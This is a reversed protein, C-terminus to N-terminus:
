YYLFTSSYRYSLAHLVNPLDQVISFKQQIEYAATRSSIGGNGSLFEDIREFSM